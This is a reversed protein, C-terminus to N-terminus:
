SIGTHPGDVKQEEVYKGNHRKWELGNISSNDGNSKINFSCWDKEFDCSITALLIIIPLNVNSKKEWYFIDM